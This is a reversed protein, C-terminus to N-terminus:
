ETLQSLMEATEDADILMLYDLRRRLSLKLIQSESWHYIRALRHVEALLRM